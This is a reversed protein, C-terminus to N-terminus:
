NVVDCTTTQSYMNTLISIFMTVLPSNELTHFASKMEKNKSVLKIVLPRAFAWIAKLADAINTFESNPSDRFDKGNMKSSRPANKEYKGKGKDNSKKTHSVTDTSLETDAKSAFDIKKSAQLQVKPMYIIDQTTDGLKRALKIMPPRGVVEAFTAKSISSTFNDSSSAEDADLSPENVMAPSCEELIEVDQFYNAVKNLHRQGSSM